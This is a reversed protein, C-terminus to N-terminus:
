EEWELKEGKRKKVSCKKCMKSRGSKINDVKQVREEGCRCRCVWELGKKGQKYGVIEWNNYREGIAKDNVRKM